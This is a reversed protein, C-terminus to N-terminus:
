QLLEDSSTLWADAIENIQVHPYLRRFTNFNKETFYVSCYDKRDKNWGPALHTAATMALVAQDASEGFCMGGYGKGSNRAALEDESMTTIFLLPMHHPHYKDYGRFIDVRIATKIQQAPIFSVEEKKTRIHIGDPEMHAKHESVQSPYCANEKEPLISYRSSFRSRVCTYNKYPLQPYMQRIVRQIAPHIEFMIVNREFLIRFPNKRLRNLYERAFFDQWDRKRKYFPVEHKRLWSRLLRKEEMQAMVEVPYCSLCLVDERDNGMACFVQFRSVPIEQIVTRLRKVTVTDPEFVVTYHGCLAYLSFATLTLIFPVVMIWDNAKLAPFLQMLPIQALSMAYMACFWIVYAYLLSAGSLASGSVQIGTNNAKQM